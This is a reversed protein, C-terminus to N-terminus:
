VYWYSLIDYHNYSKLKGGRGHVDNKFYSGINKEKEKIVEFFKNATTSKKKIDERQEQSFEYGYSGSFDVVLNEVVFKRCM